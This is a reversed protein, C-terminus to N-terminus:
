KTLLALAATGLIKQFPVIEDLEVYEDAMHATDGNGFSFGVAPTGYKALQKCVTSGGLGDLKPKEGLINEVAQALVKLSPHDPSVELPEHVHDPQIVIPEGPLTRAIAELDAQVEACTMGPLFRIDVEAEAYAPVINVKAGGRIMGINITPPSLRPHSTIHPMYGRVKQLFDMLQTIANIGRHPTSGHAQKGRSIAKFFFAGKEAVTIRRMHGGVDPIIAFEGKLHGERALFELGLESGAEEDAAGVVQIRGTLKRDITKFFAILTTIAALQGKNDSTGRGYIRNGEIQPKFPPRTWGDGPPVVDLHAAVILRVPGKGVSAIINPRGPVAEISKWSVGKRDLYDTMVAAARHEDGPPNVTEAEILAKLLAVTEQEREKVWFDLAERLM